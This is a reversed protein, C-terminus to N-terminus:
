RGAFRSGTLKVDARAWAREARARADAAEANRGQAALAEALGRL